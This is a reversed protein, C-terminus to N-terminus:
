YVLKFKKHLFPEPVKFCAYTRTNDTERSNFILIHHNNTYKQVFEYFEKKPLHSYEEYLDNIAQNMSRFICSFCANNRLVRPIQKVGQTSVILSIGMHRNMTFIKMLEPRSQSTGMNGLGECGLIDDLILLMQSKKTKQLEIQKEIISEILTPDYSTHIFASPLFESYYGNADNSASIVVIYSFDNRYEYCVYRILVSKGSNKRGYLVSIFPPKDGFIAPM